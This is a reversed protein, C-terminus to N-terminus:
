MCESDFEKQIGVFIFSYIYYFVIVPYNKANSLLGRVYQSYDSNM